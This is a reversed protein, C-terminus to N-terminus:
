TMVTTMVSDGNQAARAYFSKIDELLALLSPEMTERIQIEPEPISKKGFLRGFFSPKPPPAMRARRKPAMEAEYSKVLKNVTEETLMTLDQALKKTVEPTNIEVVCEGGDILRLMEKGSLVNDWAEDELLYGQLYMHAKGTDVADSTSLRNKLLEDLDKWLDEDSLASLRTLDDAKVAILHGLPM